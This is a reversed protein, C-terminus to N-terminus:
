SQAIDVAGEAPRGDLPDEALTLACAEYVVRPAEAPAPEWTPTRRAAV